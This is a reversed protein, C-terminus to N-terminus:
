VVHEKTSWTTKRKVKKKREKLEYTTPAMEGLDSLAEADSTSDDGQIEIMSVRPVPKLTVGWPTVTESQFSTKKQIIMSSKRRSKSTSDRREQGGNRGNNVMVSKTRSNQREM